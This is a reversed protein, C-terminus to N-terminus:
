ELLTVVLLDLWNQPVKTFTPKHTQWTKKELEQLKWTRHYLWVIQKLDINWQHKLLKQPKSKPQRFFLILSQSAINASFRHSHGHQIHWTSSTLMVLNHLKEIYNQILRGNGRQKKLCQLQHVVMKQSISATKNRTNTNKSGSIMQAAIEKAYNNRPNAFYYHYWDDFTSTTITWLISKNLIETDITKESYEWAFLPLPDDLLFLPVSGTEFVVTIM